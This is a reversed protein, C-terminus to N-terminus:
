EAEVRLAADRLLFLGVLTLGLCVAAMYALDHHTRVLSGYWGARLMEVGHVMPLWLLVERAAPTFWDAMFAAGSLPFLLYTCPHWLREVVHSYATAAGVVFALAAGFWALMLWGAAVAAMDAPPAMWGMAIFLVSLVTFSATAGALELLVRALFVDFLRVRRHYLLNINQQVAFVCRNAANRWMLVSSYGTIAFAAVPLDKHSLGAFTWLAMVGLTFIMPEAVLWLVGLNYRGFRTIVERMLLAHVVRRQIALADLLGPTRTAPM